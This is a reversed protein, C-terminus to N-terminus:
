KMSSYRLNDICSLGITDKDSYFGVNARPLNWVSETLKTKNTDTFKLSVITNGDKDKIEAYAQFSDPLSLKRISLSFSFWDSIKVDAGMPLEVIEDSLMNMSLEDPMAGKLLWGGDPKAVLSVAWRSQDSLLANGILVTMVPREKTPKEDTIGVKFDFDVMLTSGPLWRVPEGAVCRLPQPNSQIVLGKDADTDSVGVGNLVSFASSDKVKNYVNWGGQGDIEGENLDDFNITIEDASFATVAAIGMTLILGFFRNMM